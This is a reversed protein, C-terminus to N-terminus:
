ATPEPQTQEANGTLEALLTEWRACLVETSYLDRLADRGAQGLQARREPDHALAKLELALSESDGQEIVVGCGTETIIRAVESNSPGIYVAPKGAAMIGFLKSPIVVGECGVKVSILHVDGANLGQRLESRPLYDHYDFRETLNKEAVFRDIEPKRKGAGVFVFHIGTEDKLAEIAGCMTGTEHGLGLNGSYMVGCDGPKLGFKAERLPNDEHALPQLESHDAWVPIHVFGSTDVGMAAVRDTTCRGLVVVRDSLKLSVRNIWSFFRGPISERKMVGSEIALDPYLDMLWMVAKSGRFWRALVGVLSIFPPTTFAIVVDPKKITLVKFAALLYFIAFDFARAAISTRGFLSIGVRHIDVHGVTGDELPIELTERKPLNAGTKGYIARSAVATVRYGSSILHAALDRSVQATAVVDPWFAQNLLVIHPGQRTQNESKTKSKTTSMASAHKGGRVSRRNPGM